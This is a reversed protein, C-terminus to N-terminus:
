LVQARVPGTQKLKWECVSHLEMRLGALQELFLSNKYKMKYLNYILQIINDFCFFVSTRSKPAEPHVWGGDTWWYLLTSPVLSGSCLCYGGSLATRSQKSPGMDPWPLPVCVTCTYLATSSSAYMIARVWIRSYKPDVTVCSSSWRTWCDVAVRRVRVTCLEDAAGAM